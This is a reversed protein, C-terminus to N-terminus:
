VSVGPAAKGGGRQWWGWPSSSGPGVGTVPSAPPCGRQGGTGGAWGAGTDGRRRVRQPAKLARHTIDGRSPSVGRRAGPQRPCRAGSPVGRPPSGQGSHRGVRRSGEGAPVGQGRRPVGQGSHGGTRRSGRDPPLGRVRRPGKVAAGRGRGSPVGQGAPPLPEAARCPCGGAAPSRPPSPPRYTTRHALSPHRRPPPPPLPSPSLLRLPSLIRRTM